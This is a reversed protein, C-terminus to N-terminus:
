LHITASKRPISILITDIKLKMLNFLFLYLTVFIQLTKGAAFRAKILRLTRLSFGEIKLAKM